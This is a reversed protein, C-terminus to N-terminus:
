TFQLERELARLCLKTRAHREGCGTIALCRDLSQCIRVPCRALKARPREGAACPRFEHLEAFAYILAADPVCGTLELVVPKGSALELNDSEHGDAACVPLDSSVEEQAWAGHVHM